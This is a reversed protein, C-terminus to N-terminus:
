VSNLFNAPWDPPLPAVACVPSEPQLPLVLKRAHLRMGGGGATGYVPDGEIAGGILGAHVRLQHTRGTLPEMEVLRAARDLVRWRTQAPRGAPDVLMRWGEAKTSYKALPADVLGHDAQPLQSLIAWYTKQVARGEFLAALARRAPVSLALVLCGSTDRDLRHMPTPLRRLSLSRALAPLLGELSVPTKPGPHVALGAPKDLILLDRDQHLIPLRWGELEVPQRTETNM